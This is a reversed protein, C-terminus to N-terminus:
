VPVVVSHTMLGSCRIRGLLRLVLSVREPPFMREYPDQFRQQGRSRGGGGGRQQNMAAVAVRHKDQLPTRAAALCV